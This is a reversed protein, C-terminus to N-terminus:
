NPIEYEEKLTEVLQPDADKGVIRHFEQIVRQKNKGSRNIQYLTKADFFSQDENLRNIIEIAKKEADPIPAAQAAQGMMLVIAVQTLSFIAFIM